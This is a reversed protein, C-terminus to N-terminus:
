VKVSITKPRPSPLDSGVNRTQEPSSSTTRELPPDADEATLNAYENGEQGISPLTVSPPRAPPGMDSGTDRRLGGSSERPKLPFPSNNLPSPAFGDQNPSQSRDLRRGAPRPPVQPAGIESMGAPLQSQLQSRVPRPPVQPTAM